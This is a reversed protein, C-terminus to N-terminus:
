RNLPLPSVLDWLSQPTDTYPAVGVTRL